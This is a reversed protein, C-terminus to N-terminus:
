LIRCRQYTPIKTFNQSSKNLKQLVKPNASKVIYDMLTSRFPFQQSPTSQLNFHCTPPTKNFINYSFGTSSLADTSYKMWEVENYNEFDFPNKWSVTIGHNKLAADRYEEKMKVDDLFFRCYKAYVQLLHSTDHKKLYNIYLHWIKRNTLDEGLKYEVNQQVFEFDDAELVAQFWKEDDQDSFSKIKEYLRKMKQYVIMDKKPLSSYADKAYMIFNIDLMNHPYSLDELVVNQINGNTVPVKKDKDMIKNLQTLNHFRDMKYYYHYVSSYVRHKVINYNRDLDDRKTNYYKEWLEKPTLYNLSFNNFIESEVGKKWDEEIDPLVNELQHLLQRYSPDLKDYFSPSFM